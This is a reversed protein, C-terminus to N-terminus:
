KNKRRAIATYKKFRVARGFDELGESVGCASCIAMTGSRSLAIGPGVDGKPKKGFCRPCVTGSGLIENKSQKTKM